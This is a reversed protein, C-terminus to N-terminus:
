GSERKLATKECHGIERSQAATMQLSRCLINVQRRCYDQPGNERREKVTVPRPQHGGPYHSTAPFGNCGRYFSDSDYLQHAYCSHM